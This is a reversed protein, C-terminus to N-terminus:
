YSTNWLNHGIKSALEYTDEDYQQATRLLDYYGKSPEKTYGSNFVILAEKENDLLEDFAEQREDDEVESTPFLIDYRFGKDTPLLTKKTIDDRKYMKEWVNFAESRVDGSRMPTLMNKEYKDNVCMMALEYILPGYRKDAAVSIVSYFGSQPDAEFNIIAYVKRIIKYVEKGKEDVVTKGKEDVVVEKYKFLVLEDSDGKKYFLGTGEPLDSATLAVESLLSERLLKKILNKM